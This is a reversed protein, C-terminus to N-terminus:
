LRWRGDDFRSLRSVDGRYLYVWAVRYLRGAFTAASVLKAERRLRRSMLHDVSALLTGYVFLLSNVRPETM